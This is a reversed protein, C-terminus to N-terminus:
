DKREVTLKPIFTSEEKTSDVRAYLRLDTSDGSQFTDIGMGHTLGLTTSFNKKGDSSVQCSHSISEIHYLNGDWELNDGVCVPTQIGVTHLIGTLTMQQGMIFDSALTMWKKPGQEERTENVWCPVTMMFPRLGSRAIDLPDAYPPADVIQQTANRAGITDSTGYIHVFNFRLADSRGIDADRVIIEPVKWRPLEQFYTAAVNAQTYADTTFPMQRVIVTPVVKGETNARLTAYMENCSPNLYDNLVAWLPKNTLTPPVPTNRGLLNEGTFRRSSTQNTGTPAFSEYLTKSDKTGFEQAASDSYHQIGHVVEIIDATKQIRTSVDPKNLIAGVLEPVIHAYDGETGFTSKLAPDEQGSGLNKQVGKGLFVDILSVIMQNPIIGAEGTSDDFIKDIELNMKKIQTAPGAQLLSLHEEYFFTADLETFSNANMLFRAQRRGDPFQQVQERISNVRGYFKLGDRFGNPADGVEHGTVKKLKDIVDRFTEEDNMMWCFVYDGPNIISLFEKDPFLTANLSGVHNGKTSSVGISQVESTLIVAAQLAVAQSYDQSFSTASSRKYTVPFKLPLVVVIWHPNLSLYDQSEYENSINFSM